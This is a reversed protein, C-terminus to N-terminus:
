PDDIALIGRRSFRHPGSIAADVARGAGPRAIFVAPMSDSLAHRRQDSLASVAASRAVTLATRRSVPPGVACASAASLGSWDPRHDERRARYSRAAADM